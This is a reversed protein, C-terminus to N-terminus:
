RNSGYYKTGAPLYQNIATDTPIATAQYNASVLSASPIGDQNVWATGYKGNAEIGTLNVPSAAMASSFLATTLYSKNDTFIIPGAGNVYVNSNMITKPIGQYPVNAQHIVKDITTSTETRALTICLPTAGGCYMGGSPFSIVNNIMMDIRPMWDMTTPRTRLKDWDSTIGGTCPVNNRGIYDSCGAKSRSDIYVGIPNKGEVITNNILKLGSSGALKLNEDGGKIYNNALLLDDSIEYFVSTGSNNYIRNGAVETKYNSQDFWLAHSNNGEIASDIVKTYWTRSTKLAGSQPSRTFEGALNHNRIKSSKLVLNNTYLGVIGMWNSNEVTLNELTIKDTIKGTGGINISIMSADYLEINKLAANSAGEEITIVGYEQPINSYRTIRIGEISMNPTSFKIFRGKDSVQVSGKSADTSTLYLRNNTRDVWFKGNVLETKNEVQVLRSNGVWAQDAYRGLCSTTQNKCRFFDIGSAEKDILQMPTYATYSLNNETIWSTANRAGNFEVIQGPYAMIRVNRSTSSISINSENYTGGKIIIPDNAVAVSYAKSITAYPASETGNGTTDNGNTAVFRKTGTLANIDYSIPLKAGPNFGNQTCGFTIAKANSANTDNIPVACNYLLANEVEQQVYPTAANSVLLLMSGIIAVSLIAIIYKHNNLKSFM